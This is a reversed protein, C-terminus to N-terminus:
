YTNPLIKNEKYNEANLHKEIPSKYRFSVAVM